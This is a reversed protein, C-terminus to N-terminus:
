FYYDFTATVANDSKGTATCTVSACTAGGTLAGIPGNGTSSAAYNHDHRFELAQLTSHLLSTNLTIATRTLPMGLSLADHSTGYDMSLSTPKEMVYFSYAAELNTAWPKAGHGNYSMDNPNFRTSAGVYEASLDIHELINLSGRLNLGPVRHTIQEFSNFGNGHQMGESDALSGIISGGVNGRITQGKFKYGLNLGGNAIKNTVSVHSDGSFAFGSAYWANDGEQQYGLLIPRAKTRGLLKTLPSSIMSSSYTGYPVYFQGFTGYVPSKAFNGITVFAKNLYLRSNDIRYGDGPLPGSDFSYEIYGLLWDSPGMFFLDLSANSVDISSMSPSGGIDTYNILGEVVGSLLLHSHYPEQAITGGMAQLQDKIAKRVTLLKVDENISPSNIILDSGDFQLPVGIFPGTSVFAQGPVDLDIPLIQKEEKIFQALEQRSLGQKKTTQQSVAGTTNAAAAFIPTVSFGALWITAIIPQFPFKM